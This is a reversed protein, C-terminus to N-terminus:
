VGATSTAPCWLNIGDMLEPEMQETITRRIRPACRKLKALGNTVFAYDEKGPGDFSYIYTRRRSPGRLRGQRGFGPDDAM